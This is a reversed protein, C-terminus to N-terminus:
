LSWMRYERFHITKLTLQQLQTESMATLAEICPTWGGVHEVDLGTNVTIIDSTRLYDFWDLM